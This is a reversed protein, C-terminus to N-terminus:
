LVHSTSTTKAGVRDMQVDHQYQMQRLEKDQALRDFHRASELQKNKLVLGDRKRGEEHALALCDRLHGNDNEVAQLLSSFFVHQFIVSCFLVFM